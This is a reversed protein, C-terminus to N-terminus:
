SGSFDRIMSLLQEATFPKPLYPLHNEKLKEEEQDGFNISGSIFLFRQAAPPKEARLKEFLEWGNMQPIRYDCITLDFSERLLTEYASKGDTALTVHYGKGTLINKLFDAVAENDEVLFIRQIGGNSGAAKSRIEKGANELSKGSGAPLEVTFVAGGGSTNHARIEGQHAQVIGYSLSLGLGTGKGVDKTTFFPDFIRSLIGDHIGSGNDEFVFVTKALSQVVEVRIRRGEPRAELAHAANLLINEFVRRIQVPDCFIRAPVAPYNKELSVGRKQLEVATKQLAEDVLECPDMMSCLMKMKRTFVQMDQVIRSCRRAQEHITSLYRGPDAGKSEMLLQTYGIVATLPNNIEHAVGSVLLGLSALKEKQQDELRADQFNGSSKDLAIREVLARLGAIEELALTYEGAGEKFAVPLAGTEGGQTLYIFISFPNRTKFAEIEKMDWGRKHLIVLDFSFAEPEGPDSEAALALLHGAELLERSIKESVNKERDLILIKMRKGPKRVGGEEWDM